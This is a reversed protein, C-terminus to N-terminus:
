KTTAAKRVAKAAAAKPTTAPSPELGLMRNIDHTLTAPVIPMPPPSYRPIFQAGEPWEAVLRKVTTCRKLLAYLKETLGKAAEAHRDHQARLDDYAKRMPSKKSIEITGQSLSSSPFPMEKPLKLERGYYRTEGERRVTLTDSFEIWDRGLSRAMAEKDGYTYQYLALAFEQDAKLLAAQPEKNFAALAKTVISSRLEQTLRRNDNM